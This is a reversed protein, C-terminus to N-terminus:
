RCEYIWWSIYVIKNGKREIHVNIDNNYPDRGNYYDIGDKNDYWEATINGNQYQPFYQQMEKQTLRISNKM